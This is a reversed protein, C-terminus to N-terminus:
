ITQTHPYQNSEKPKPYPRTAPQKTYYMSSNGLDQLLCAIQQCWFHKQQTSNQWRSNTRFTAPKLWYRVDKLDAMAVYRIDRGLGNRKFGVKISNKWRSLNNKKSRAKWGSRPTYTLRIAWDTYRSAVPQVTRPDFRPPPRYKGCGDLGSRPGVSGGICHTGPRKGPPLAAPAHRQGGVGM